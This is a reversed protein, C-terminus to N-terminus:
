RAVRYIVGDNNSLSVGSSQGALTGIDAFYVFGEDVLVYAAGFPNGGAYTTPDRVAVQGLLLLDPRSNKRWVQLLAGLTAAVLPLSVSLASRRALPLLM